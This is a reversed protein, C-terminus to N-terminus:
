EVTTEVTEFTINNFDFMDSDIASSFNVMEETNSFGTVTLKRGDNLVIHLTHM